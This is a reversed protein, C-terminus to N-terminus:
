EWIIQHQITKIASRLNNKKSTMGTLTLELGQISCSKYPKGKPGGEAYSGEWTHPSGCSGFIQIQKYPHLKLGESRSNTYTGRFDESMWVYKHYHGCLYLDCTGDIADRVRKLTNLIAQETTGGGGGHTLCIKFWSFKTKFLIITHNSSFGIGHNRCVEEILSYNQGTARLARNDHNGLVLEKVIHPPLLTLDEKFQEIGLKESPGTVSAGPSHLTVGETIDGGFLIFDYQGKLAKRIFTRNNEPYHLDTLFLGKLTTKDPFDHVIYRTM